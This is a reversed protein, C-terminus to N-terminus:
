IIEVIVDLYCKYISQTIANSSDDVTTNDGM